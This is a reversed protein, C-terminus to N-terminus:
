KSTVARTASGGLSSRVRINQPNSPWSLDGRYRGGGNNQLTGIMQDTSAVYVTLTASSSTSSAEVKLVRSAASYEAKQISVTDAAPPTAPTVTLTATRTVGFSASITVPASASVSVTTVAFTASTAGGAITVSAPVGAVAANSSSLTVVAGGSPAAGTLTVTGQSSNGGIVTAPNLSLTSLTV